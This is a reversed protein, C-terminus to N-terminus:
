QVADAGSEPLTGSMRITPDPWGGATIDIKVHFGNRSTFELASINRAEMARLVGNTAAEVIDDVAIRQPQEDPM